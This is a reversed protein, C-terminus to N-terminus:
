LLSSLKEAVVLLDDTNRVYESYVGGTANEDDDSDNDDDDNEGEFV